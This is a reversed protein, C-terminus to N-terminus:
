EEKLIFNLINGLGLHGSRCIFLSLNVQITSKMRETETERDRDTEIHREGHTVREHM